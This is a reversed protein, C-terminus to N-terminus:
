AARYTGNVLLIDNVAWTFPNIARIYDSSDIYTGVFLYIHVDTTTSTPLYGYINPYQRGVDDDYGTARVASAAEDSDAATVPYSMTVTQGAGPFVTTSGLVLKAQFHVVDGLQQYNATVTGNGVTVNGWTPTWTQTSSTVVPLWASGDYLTLTDVDELYAAMGEDLVASLATDRATSDAFTMVTQRMLYGDVDAATLV